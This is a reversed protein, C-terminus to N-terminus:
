ACNLVLKPSQISISFIIAQIIRSEVINNVRINKRKMKNMKKHFEKLNMRGVNTNSINGVELILKSPPAVGKFKYKMKHPSTM